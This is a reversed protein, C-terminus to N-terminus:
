EFHGEEVLRRISNRWSIAKKVDRADSSVAISMHGEKLIAPSVFDCSEPDDASCVLIGRARADRVVQRNVAEDNTCAFVLGTGALCEPSYAQRDIAIGSQEIELAVEPARVLVDRTYKLLTRLKQLAIRGGGVMLVKRDAIRICIPLFKM